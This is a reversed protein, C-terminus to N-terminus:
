VTKHFAELFFCLVNGVLLKKIDLDSFRFGFIYWGIWHWGSLNQWIFDIGCFHTCQTIAVPWYCSQNCYFCILSASIFNPLPEGIQFVADIFLKHDSLDFNTIRKPFRQMRWTSFHGGQLGSSGGGSYMQLMMFCFICCLLSLVASCNFNRILSSVPCCGRGSTWWSSEETRLHKYVATLLLPPAVCRNAHDQGLKRCTASM